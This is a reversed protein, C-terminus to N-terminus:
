LTEGEGCIERLAKVCLISWPVSSALVLFSPSLSCYATPEDTMTRPVYAEMVVLNTLGLKSNVKQM